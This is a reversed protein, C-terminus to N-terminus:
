DMSTGLQVSSSNYLSVYTQMNFIYIYIGFVTHLMFTVLNAYPELASLVMIPM